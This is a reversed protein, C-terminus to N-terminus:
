DQSQGDLFEITVQRCGLCFVPEQVSQLTMGLGDTVHSRFAVHDNRCGIIGGSPDPVRVSSFQNMSKNSVLDLEVFNHQIRGIALTKSSTQIASNANPGKVGASTEM